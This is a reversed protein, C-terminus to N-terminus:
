SDDFMLQNPDLKESRRGYVRRLLQEVQHQLMKLSLETCQLKKTLEQIQLDKKELAANAEALSNFM